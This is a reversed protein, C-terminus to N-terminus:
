AGALTEQLPGSPGRVWRYATETARIEVALGVGATVDHRNCFLTVGDGDRNRQTRPGEPGSEALDRRRSAAVAVLRSVAVSAACGRGRGSAKASPARAKQGAKRWTVGGRLPSRLWGRCRWVQLVAEVGGSAKASPARAKQGAKRWTVGGRLPSRLWGRCRWVQLVAEVRGSAKASPARAKRGAKRWFLAAAFRRGCGGRCRWVQLM